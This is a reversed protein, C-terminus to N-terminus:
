VPLRSAVWCRRHGVDLAARRLGPCTELLRYFGSRSVGMHRAAETVTFCQTVALPRVHFFTDWGKQGAPYGHVLMDVAVGSPYACIERLAYPGVVPSVHKANASFRRCDAGDFDRRDLGSLELMAESGWVVRLTPIRVVGHPM